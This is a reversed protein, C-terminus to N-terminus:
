PSLIFTLMERRVGEWKIRADFTLSTFGSGERRQKELPHAADSLLFVEPADPSTNERSIIHRFVILLSSTNVLVKQHTGGGRRQKALHDWASARGKEYKQMM